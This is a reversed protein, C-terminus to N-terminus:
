GNSATREEIQKLVGDVAGKFVVSLTMAEDKDHKLIPALQVAVFTCLTSIVSLVSTDLKDELYADTTERLLDALETIVSGTVRIGMEDCEKRLLDDETNVTEPALEFESAETM